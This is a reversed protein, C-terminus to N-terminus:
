DRAIKRCPKCYMYSAVQPLMSKRIVLISYSIGHSTVNVQMEM